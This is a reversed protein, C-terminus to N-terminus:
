SATNIAGADYTVVMNQSIHNAVFDLAAERELYTKVSPYGASSAITSDPLVVHKHETRMVDKIKTNPDNKDVPLGTDKNIALFAVNVVHIGIAM